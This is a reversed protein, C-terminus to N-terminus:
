LTERGTKGKINAGYVVEVADTSRLSEIDDCCIAHRRVTRYSFAQCRFLEDLFCATSWHAVHGFSDGVDSDTSANKCENSDSKPQHSSKWAESSLKSHIIYHDYEGRYAERFRYAASDLLNYSTM